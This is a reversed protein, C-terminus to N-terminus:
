RGDIIRDLIRRMLETCNGRRVGDGNCGHSPTGVTVLEQILMEIVGIM